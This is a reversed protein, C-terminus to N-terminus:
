RKEAFIIEHFQRVGIYRNDCVPHKRYLMNLTASPHEFNGAWEGEAQTAQTLSLVKSPGVKRYMKGELVEAHCHAGPLTPKKFDKDTTIYVFLPAGSSAEGDGFSYSSNLTSSSGFKRM